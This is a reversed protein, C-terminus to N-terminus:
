FRILDTSYKFSILYLIFSKILLINLTWAWDLGIYLSGPSASFPPAENMWEDVVAKVKRENHTELSRPSNQQLKM